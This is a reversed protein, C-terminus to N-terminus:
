AAKKLHSRFTQYKETKYIAELDGIVKDAEPSEFYFNWSHGERWGASLDMTARKGEPNVYESFGGGYIATSKVSYGSDRFYADLKVKNKNYKGLIQTEM